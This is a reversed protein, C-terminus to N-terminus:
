DVQMQTLPRPILFSKIKNPLHSFVWRCTSESKRLVIVLTIKIIWNTIVLDREVLYVFNM